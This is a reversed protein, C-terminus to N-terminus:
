VGHALHDLHSRLKLMVVHYMTSEYIRVHVTLGPRLPNSEDLTLLRCKEHDLHGNQSGSTGHFEYGEPASSFHLKGFGEFNLKGFCSM